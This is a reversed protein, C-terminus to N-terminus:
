FSGKICFGSWKKFFVQKTQNSYTCALGSYLWYGPPLLSWECDSWPECYVPAPVGSTGTCPRAYLAGGDGPLCYQFGGFLCPTCQEAEGNGGDVPVPCDTRGSLLCRNYEAWADDDTPLKIRHPESGADGISRRLRPGLGRHVPACQRPILM